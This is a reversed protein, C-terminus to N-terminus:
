VLDIYGDDRYRFVIQRREAVSQDAAFCMVASLYGAAADQDPRFAPDEMMRKLLMAHRTDGGGHGTGNTTVTLSEVTGDGLEISLSLAM